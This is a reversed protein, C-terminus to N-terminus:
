FNIDLQTTFTNASLAPAPAQVNWIDYGFIVSTNSSFAYSVGFSLAGFANNGGQYDVAAWWKDNLQKDWSALIGSSEIKKGNAALLTTDFTPNNSNGFYYGASLRGFADFNKALLGYVMDQDNGAFGTTKNTSTLGINCAGVAFSLPFDKSEAVGYKINLQIPYSMPTIYDIGIELGPLLGYTIGWDNALIGGTAATVYSDLGLHWTGTAQIDTSPIWIQTSPTAWASAFTSLALGMTLAATALFRKM